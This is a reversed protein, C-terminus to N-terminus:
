QMNRKEDDALQEAKSLKDYVRLTESLGGSGNNDIYNRALSVAESLQAIIESKRALQNLIDQDSEVVELGNGINRPEFHWEANPGVNGTRDTMFWRKAADHEVVTLVAGLPEDTCAVNNETVRLKTGIAPLEDEKVIELGNGIHQTEFYWHTGACMSTRDTYFACKLVGHHAVVTLIAGAKEATSLFNDKTVRLKTGIKPLEPM